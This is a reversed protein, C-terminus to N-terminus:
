RATQLSKAGKELDLVYTWPKFCKTHSLSYNYLVIKCFKISIVNLIRLNEYPRGYFIM